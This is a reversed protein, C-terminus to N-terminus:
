LCEVVLEPQAPLFIEREIEIIVEQRKGAKVVLGDSGIRIVSEKTSDTFCNMLIIPDNGVAPSEPIGGRYNV